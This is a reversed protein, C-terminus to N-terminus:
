RSVFVVLYDYETPDCKFFVVCASLCLSSSPTAGVACAFLSLVKWESDNYNILM